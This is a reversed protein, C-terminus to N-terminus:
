YIYCLVYMMGKKLKSARIDILGRQQQFCFLSMEPGIYSEISDNTRGLGDVYGM